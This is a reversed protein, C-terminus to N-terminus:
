HALQCAKKWYYFTDRGRIPTKKDKGRFVYVNNVNDRAFAKQAERHLRKMLKYIEPYLPTKMPRANRGLKKEGKRLSPPLQIYKETLNIMSFRLGILESKRYGLM